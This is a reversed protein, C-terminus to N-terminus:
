AAGRVRALELAPPSSSTAAPHNAHETKDWRTPAGRLSRVYSFLARRGALIAIWNSVFMRPISLLGQWIGHERTTFAWRAVFRWFFAMLNAALLSSVVPSLPVSNVLGMQAAAWTFGILLVLAYAMALLISAFPGRRDRMQMWKQALGGQWGIRDWGQLAIGQIWRTKQRVATEVSSPFYARTAVLQGQADRLRLFRDRGGLAKVQLGLEYDETLSDVAFPKGDGNQEAVCELMERAIACGVGAGPIGAGVADRVVMMKGHAEAFEDCYHGAILPSGRLPMPMVPLQVFENDDIARDLASLANADVMDEADHLIVMRAIEGSREEDERLADYLRNLVDPKSTPGDRDHIVMRVRADGRVAKMAADLTAPDNRYCGIYIRLDSHQWKNLAHSLTQGIVQSERWAPIFVAAMGRLQGQRRDNEPLRESRIRGTLKLYIYTFDVAIEDVAGILFFVAAFLLLESEIFALWTGVDTGFLEM